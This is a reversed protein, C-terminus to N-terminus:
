TFLANATNGGINIKKILYGVCRGKNFFINIGAKNFFVM